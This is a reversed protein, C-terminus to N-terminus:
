GASEENKLVRGAARESRCPDAFIGVILPNVSDCAGLGPWPVDVSLEPRAARVMRELVTASIAAVACALGLKQGGNRATERSTGM